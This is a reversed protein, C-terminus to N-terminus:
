GRIRVRSEEDSQHDPEWDEWLGRAQPLAKDLAVCELEWAWGDREARVVQSHTMHARQALQAQTLGAALRARVLANPREQYTIPHMNPM